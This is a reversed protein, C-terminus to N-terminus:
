SFLLTLTIPALSAQTNALAMVMLVITVPVNLIGITLLAAASLTWVGERTRVQILRRWIRTTLVVFAILLASSVIAKPCQWSLRHEVQDQLQIPMSANNSQAWAAVAHHLAAKQTGAQPTGLDAIFQAFGEQPHVVTSLNIAVILLMGLAVLLSTAGFWVSVTREFHQTKRYRRWFYLSLWALLIVFVGGQIVLVVHYNIYDRLLTDYAPNSRTNSQLLAFLIQQLDDSNM